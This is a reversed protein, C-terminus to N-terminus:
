TIRVVQIQAPTGVFRPPLKSKVLLLSLQMLADISENASWAVLCPGLASHQSKKSSVDHAHRRDWLYDNSAM